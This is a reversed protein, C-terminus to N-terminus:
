ARPSRGAWRPVHRPVLRGPGSARQALTERVVGALQTESREVAPLAARARSLGWTVLLAALGLLLLVGSGVPAAGALQSRDQGRGDGHQAAPDDHEDSAWSGPTRRALGM